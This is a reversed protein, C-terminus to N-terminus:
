FVIKIKPFNGWFLGFGLFCHIGCYKEEKISPVKTRPEKQDAHTHTHTNPFQAKGPRPVCTIKSPLVNAFLANGFM